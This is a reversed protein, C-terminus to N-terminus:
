PRVLRLGPIDAFDGPNLTWLAADHRIACAAIAIDVERTRARKVSRYIRAGIEADAAEFPLAAESPFLTQQAELEAQVRPGRLWEYLVMTCLALKEGRDFAAVIQPLLRANETLSDILVSTDLLIV